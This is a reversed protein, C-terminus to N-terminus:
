LNCCVHLSETAFCNNRIRGTLTDIWLMKSCQDSFMSASNSSQGIAPKLKSRTDSFESASHPLKM